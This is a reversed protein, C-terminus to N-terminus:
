PRAPWSFEDPSSTLFSSRRESSTMISQLYGFLDMILHVIVFETQTSTKDDFSAKLYFSGYRLPTRAM